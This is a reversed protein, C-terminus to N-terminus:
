VIVRPIIFPRSCTSPSLGLAIRVECAEGKNIRTAVVRCQVYTLESGHPRYHVYARVYLLLWHTPTVYLVVSFDLFNYLGDSFSPERFLGVWVIWTSTM